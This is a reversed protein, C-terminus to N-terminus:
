YDPKSIVWSYNAYYTNISDVVGDILVALSIVIFMIVLYETIASGIQDNNKM